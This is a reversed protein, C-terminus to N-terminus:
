LEEKSSVGASSTPSGPAAPAPPSSSRSSSSSRKGASRKKGSGRPKGAGAEPSSPSASPSAPKATENGNAAAKAAEDQKRQEADILQQRSLWTHMNKPKTRGALLRSWMGPEKKALTFSIRGVSSFSWECSSPEIEKLLELELKFRKPKQRGRADFTLARPEFSVREEDVNLVTVPGDIRSSFKANIYM